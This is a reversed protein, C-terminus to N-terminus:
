ATMILVTITVEDFGTTYIEAGAKKSRSSGSIVRVGKGILKNSVITYEEKMHFNKGFM